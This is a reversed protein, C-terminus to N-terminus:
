EKKLYHFLKKIHGLLVDQKLLFQFLCWSLFGKEQLQLIYNKKYFFNVTSGGNKEWQDSM